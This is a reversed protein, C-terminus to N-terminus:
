AQVREERALEIRLGDSMLFSRANRELTDRRPPHSLKEREERLSPVKDCSCM